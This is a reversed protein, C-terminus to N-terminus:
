AYVNMKEHSIISANYPISILNLVFTILSCQLVWNAAHLREGPINAYVNLFWLGAIEVAVILIVSLILQINLSTSFIKKLKDKDGHGLEYTLYRMTSITLSSSIMSFMAVIGGVVNYIGYDDFGLADIVERSIYLNLCMTVFTRVYLLVTNKVLRKSASGSQEM